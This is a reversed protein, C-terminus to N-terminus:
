VRSLAEDAAEDLQQRLTKESAGPRATQGPGPAGTVSSGAKKAAAAKARAQSANREGVSQERAALVKARTAPTAWVAEDYLDQLSPIPQKEATYAKALSVMRTEVDAYHPHLIAGKDDKAAKFAEISQDIENLQKQSQQAAFDLEARERASLKGVVTNLQQELQAIRPDAAAADHGNPQAAGNATPQGAAIGYAAIIQQPTIKYSDMVGKVIATRNEPTGNMLGYEVNAWAEILKSPTFGAQRMQELHPKFMEHVPEYERKLEAVGQTKRTYDAEMEKHRDLLFAQATPPLAKFTEKDKAAWHAPPEGAPQSEPKQQQQGEAAAAAQGEPAPAGGEGDAKVFKGDAGRAPGAAATGAAEPGEAGDEPAEAAKEADDAAAALVTRLDDAAPQEEATGETEPPM